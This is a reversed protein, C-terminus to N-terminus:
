EDDARGRSGRRGDNGVHGGASNMQRRREEETTEVINGNEDVKYKDYVQDGHWVTYKGAPAGGGGAAAAAASAVGQTAAAASNAASALQNMKQVGQDIAQNTNKQQMEQLQQQRLTEAAAITKDKLAKAGKIVQETIKVQALYNENALNLADQALKIAKFHAENVTGAAEAEAAKFQAQKLMFQATKILVQMKREEAKAAAVTREYLLEAESVTIEYLANIAKLKEQQSTASALDAEIQQRKVGLIEKEAQYTAEAIKRQNAMANLTAAEARQAKQRITDLQSEVNALGESGGPPPQNGVNALADAVQNGATELGSLISDLQKAQDNYDSQEGAAGKMAVELAGYTLAAAGAAAAITPLGVGTLANITAQAAAVGKLGSGLIKTATAWLKTAIAAGKLVVIFSGVTGLIQVVQKINTALFGITLALGSLVKALPTFAPLLATILNKVANITALWAGKMTAAAEAQAKAAAGASNKQNDLASNFKEMDNALVPAVAAVAEVSGFLKTMAEASGGTAKNVDDLVGGFGKSQIAAANFEIGLEKAYDSAEKTPKLVAAIAQRMGAFASEVPVGSATSASIAANLEDIGVGAAAAIPAIKGIQAAYQAVVIKGDNQTTIFGDVIQEAKSASLGYANLVSTTADAVENLEAFGGTAGLASAKLVQAADAADTFGASAVDYAAALLEAESQQYGLEASVAKLRKSLFDADVGLTRLKAKSFDVEAIQKAAAGFAALVTTIGAISALGKLAGSFKKVGKAGVTAAAGTGATARNFKKINNAGVGAAKSAQNLAAQSVKLAQLGKVNYVVDLNVQAM